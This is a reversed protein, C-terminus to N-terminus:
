RRLILLLILLIGLGSILYLPVKKDTEPQTLTTLKQKIQMGKETVEQVGSILKEIIIQWFGLGNICSGCGTLDGLYGTGDNQAYSMSYM